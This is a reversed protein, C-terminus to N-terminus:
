FIYGLSMNVHNASQSDLGFYYTRLRRYEISFVVDSRPQFIFNVFASQNREVFAGDYGANVPFRNIQSAFPNDQGFAGNIQFKPKPKFKLQAWGGMSNLGEVVTAPDTFPGSLLVTQDFGAGLGGLARGRYFEGTFEFLKGLPLTLDTTGAWGDVSRGLAWSQRGYYGGFGAILEQGFLHHSWAIRAAYAPQGSQEGWSPYREYSSAPIDGSQSDLIGAQFLLSSSESVHVRHEIRVQPTWSWLNGAYSLPPVALSAFSTPVLPSLFLADQGAIVSTNAWDFRITGTRLRAIGLSTGNPTDPFGGAFDFSIDASTHAGAIAPGFAGLTIQSQRLSGGFSSSSEYPNPAEALSPFDINDVAGSNGFINLLVIGSLRLRYKSGSEVKTQYQDNIKADVLQIDEGIKALVDSNPQEQSPAATSASSPVGPAAPASVPPSPLTSYSSPIRAASQEVTEASSAPLRRRLERAEEIAQQQQARMDSLQAKLDKVQGQLERVADSLARMDSSPLDQQPSTAASKPAEQGHLFAPSLLLASSALVLANLRERCSNMRM